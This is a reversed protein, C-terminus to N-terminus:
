HKHIAVLKSQIGAIEINLVDLMKDMEFITKRVEDPVDSSRYKSYPSNQIADMYKQYTVPVESRKAERKERVEVISAELQPQTKKLREFNRRSQETGKGALFELLAYVMKQADAESVAHVTYNTRGWVHRSLDSESTGLHREMESRSISRRTTSRSAIWFLQDTELLARQGASFSRGARTKLLDTANPANPEAFGWEVRFQAAYTPKIPPTKEFDLTVPSSDRFRLLVEPQNPEASFGASVVCAVVVGLSLRIQRSSTM